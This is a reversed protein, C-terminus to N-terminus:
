GRILSEFYDVPEPEPLPHPEVELTWAGPFDPTANLIAANREAQTEWGVDPLFEMSFPVETMDACYLNTSANRFDGTGILRLGRFFDALPTKIYQRWCDEPTTKRRAM